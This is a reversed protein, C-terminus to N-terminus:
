IEVELARIRGTKETVKVSVTGDSVSAEVKSIVSEGKYAEIVNVYIPCKATSRELLYSVNKDAPNNPGEAYIMEHGDALAYIDLNCGDCVYECKVIGEAKDIYANKIYSQAGKQSIGNVYRGSKPAVLRGDTHWTWEKKLDNDSKVSFVDIFYKDHWSVVRRMRVGRYAEDSWQKITFSDLMRYDEPPLTEADLYIDDPANVRYENVVTDCPAMNEGDIVVTNHSATNKFYGYHLPSGYGSSTGFDASVGEGFAGFSISLRDYHDHEGGYPLAKFALYRDGSGRLVALNSGGKAFYFDKKIPPINEPLKEVGYMIAYVSLERENGVYSAKLLPLLEDRKLYAYAYEYLIGNGAYYGGGDNFKFNRKGDINVNELFMLAAYLKERYHDDAFLSYEPTNKAMMEYIMFWRLSYCHYGLSGEFWLNDDLYAHDIQYKIGYKDNLAKEVLDKDDIAFGITAISASIVVEHNHIQPTLYKIQHKAAERFLDNEIHEREASTFEDKILAYARALNYIPHCDSLVQSAFRGPNNYPIGGHVEYNCYNDAYGLLINKVIDLYESKEAGVYILALDFAAEVTVDLIYDWWAGIYPEGSVVNGCVSCDFHDNCDYDYVLKGGCKPCTFYHGWTALGSKQIILKRRINETKKEVNSVFKPNDSIRKKIRAIDESSFMQM